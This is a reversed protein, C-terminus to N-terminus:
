EKAKRRKARLQKLLPHPAYYDGLKQQMYELGTEFLEPAFGVIEMLGFKHGLLTKSIINIDADTCIGEGIMKLAENIQVLLLRGAQGPSDRIVIYKKGISRAFYKTTDLTSESTFISPIIECFSLELPRTFHIGIVRDQRKTLSSIEGICMSSSNSALITSSDCVEDLNKFFQKKIEINEPISEIVMDCKDVAIGLNHTFLVKHNPNVIQEPLGKTQMYRELDVSIKNKVEELADTNIDYVSIEYGCRVLLLMIQYGIEGAGAVCIRKIVM